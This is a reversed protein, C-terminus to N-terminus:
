ALNYMHIFSIYYNVCDTTSSPFSLDNINQVSININVKSRLITATSHFSYITTFKIEPAYNWSWLMNYYLRFTLSQLRSKYSGRSIFHLSCIICVLFKFCKSGTKFQKFTRELKKQLRITDIICYSACFQLKM